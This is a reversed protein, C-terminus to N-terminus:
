CSAPILLAEGGVEAVAFGPSPLDCISCTAALVCGDGPELRYLTVERGEEDTVFIRARGSLVLPYVSPAEGPSGLIRGSPVRLVNAGSALDLAVNGPMAEFSRFTRLTDVQAPTIM